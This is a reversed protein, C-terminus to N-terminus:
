LEQCDHSLRTDCTNTEGTMAVHMQESQSSLKAIGSRTIRM